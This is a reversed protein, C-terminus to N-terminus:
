PKLHVEAAFHVSISDFACLQHPPNQKVPVVQVRLLFDHGEGAVSGVKFKGDVIAVQAKHAFLFQPIEKKFIKLFEKKCIM